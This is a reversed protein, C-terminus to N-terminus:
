IKQGFLDKLINKIPSDFIDSIFSSKEHIKEIDKKNVDVLCKEEFICLCDGNKNEEILRLKKGEIEKISGFLYTTHETKSKLCVFRM